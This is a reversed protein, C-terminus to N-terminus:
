SALDIVLSLHTRCTCRASDQRMMPLMSAVPGRQCDSPQPLLVRIACKAESQRAKQPCRQKTDGQDWVKTGASVALWSGRSGVDPIATDPSPFRLTHVFLGAIAALLRSRSKGGSLKGGSDMFSTIYESSVNSVFQATSEAFTFM